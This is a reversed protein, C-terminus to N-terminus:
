AARRRVLLRRSALAEDIAREAIKDLERRNTTPTPSEVGTLLEQSRQVLKGRRNVIDRFVSVHLEHEGDEATEAYAYIRHTRGFRKNITRDAHGAVHEPVDLVVHYEALEDFTWWFDRYFSGDDNHEVIRVTRLVPDVSEVTGCVGYHPKDSVHRAFMARSTDRANTFSRVIAADRPSLETPNPDQPTM